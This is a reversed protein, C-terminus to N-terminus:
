STAQEKPGLYRAYVYSAGNAQRAAFEWDGEPILLRGRRLGAVIVAAGNGPPREAVRAWRGPTTTLPALRKLWVGRQNAVPHPDEWIVGNDESM